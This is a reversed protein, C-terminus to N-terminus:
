GENLEREARLWNEVADGGERQHLHYAREAIEEHTTAARPKAASKKASTAAKKAGTAKKAAGSKKVGGSKKASTSKKAAKKAAKKGPGDSTSM